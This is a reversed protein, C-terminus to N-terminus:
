IVKVKNFVKKVTSTGLIIKKSLWSYLKRNAGGKLKYIASNLPIIVAGYKDLFPTGVKQNESLEWLDWRGASLSFAWIYNRRITVSPNTNSLAHRSVYRSNKLSDLYEVIFLVADM